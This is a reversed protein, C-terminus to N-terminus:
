PRNVTALYKKLEDLGLGTATCIEELPRGLKYFNGAIEFKSEVKGEVKGEAKGEARGERKGARFSSEKQSILYTRSKERAEMLERKEADANIKKLENVMDTIGEESKLGDELEATIKGYIEGFKLVHLWKEFRSRPALPQREHFKTLDIYHLQITDVLAVSNDQNRFSFIEQVRRSEQFLDFGLLSIATAPQLMGYSQGKKLQHGYLRTLYFLSRKIFYEDPLVQLEVIYLHGAGDQVKVDVISLKDNHVQRDNFPNMITVKQIISEGRLDLLANLLCITFRANAQQGFIWKFVFDNYFDYIKLGDDQFVNNNTESM